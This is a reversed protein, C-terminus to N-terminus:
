VKAPLKLGAKSKPLLGTLWRRVPGDFWNDVVYAVILMLVVMFIGTVPAIEKLIPFKSMMGRNLIALIPIHLVYVAYSTLGLFASPRLLWAPPSYVVALVALVPLLLLVCGIDWFAQPVILAVPAYLAVAVGVLVILEMLGNSARRMDIFRSRAILIGMTFGFLVRPIGLHFDDLTVGVDLNGTSLAIAILSLGSLVVVALLVGTHLVRIFVAYIINVAVELSLSWTPANLPFANGSSIQFPIPIFVMAAIIAIPLTLSTWNDGGSLMSAIATGSGIFVALINLPSLRIFRRLVFSSTSMDNMLRERYAHDIVIGSLIFFLDVALYGATFSAPGFYAKYHFSVVALAAIGRMLDLTHLTRRQEEATASRSM